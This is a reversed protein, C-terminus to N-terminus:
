GHDAGLRDLIPQLAAANEVQANHGLGPLIV